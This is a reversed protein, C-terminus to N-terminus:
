AYFKIEKYNVDVGNSYFALNKNNVGPLRVTLAVSNDLYVTMIEDEIIINVEYDRNSDYVFPVSALINGYRIINSVNNYCALKSNLADFAIVASGLRNNVGNVNFTIGFNGKYSNVNFKFNMRTTQKKLKKFCISSFKDKGFTLESRVEDNLDLYEVETSLENLVNEIIVANM